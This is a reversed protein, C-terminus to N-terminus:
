KLQIIIGNSIIDTKDAKVEKKTFDNDSFEEIFRKKNTIYEENKRM